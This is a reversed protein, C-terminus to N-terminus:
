SYLAASFSNLIPVIYIGRSRKFALFVRSEVVYRSDKANMNEIFKEYAFGGSSVDYTKDKAALKIWDRFEIEELPEGWTMLETKLLELDVIKQEEDDHGLAAMAETVVAETSVNPSRFGDSLDRVCVCM